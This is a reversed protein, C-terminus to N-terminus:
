AISLRDIRAGVARANDPQLRYGAPVYSTRHNSHGASSRMVPGLRATTLALGHSDVLIEVAENRLRPALDRGVLRGSNVDYDPGSRVETPSFGSVDIKGVYNRGM